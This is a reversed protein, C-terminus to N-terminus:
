WVLHIVFLKVYKFNFTCWEFLVPGRKFGGWGEGTQKLVLGKSIGGTEERDFRVCLLSLHM